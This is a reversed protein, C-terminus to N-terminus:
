WFPLATPHADHRDLRALGAPGPTAGVARRLALSAGFVPDSRPRTIIAGSEVFSPAPQRSKTRREGSYPHKPRPSIMSVSVLTTTWTGDASGVGFVDSCQNTDGAVLHTAISDFAVFRGDTSRSPAGSWGNAGLSIQRRRWHVTFGCSSPLERCAGIKCSPTFRNPHANSPWRATTGPRIVSRLNPLRRSLRATFLRKAVM